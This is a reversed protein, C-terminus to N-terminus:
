FPRYRYQWCYIHEGKGRDQRHAVGTNGGIAGGVLLSLALVLVVAKGGFGGRRKRGVSEFRDRKM